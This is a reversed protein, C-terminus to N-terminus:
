PAAARPTSRLISGLSAPHSLEDMSWREVIPEGAASHGITRCLILPSRKEFFERTAIEVPDHSTRQMKCYNSGHDAIQKARTAIINAAESKQILNSTVREEPPVFIINRARNAGAIVPDEKQRSPQAKQPAPDNDEPVELEEDDDTGAADEDLGLEDDDPEAPEDVVELEDDVVELEDPEALEDPEFDDDDSM